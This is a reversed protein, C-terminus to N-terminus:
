GAASFLKRQLYELPTFIISWDMKKSSFISTWDAWFCPIYLYIRRRNIPQLPRANEKGHVADLLLDLQRGSVTRIKNQITWTVGESCPPTTLSGTYRYFSDDDRAFDNPDIMGPSTENINLEVMAKLYRTLQKLFPDKRGIRYLVSLVAINNTEENVHVAHRELEYRVGYVTHESPVHWHYQRLQYEMGNIEISGADGIWELAIDHGRNVLTTFSPQHQAYVQEWDPVIEVRVNTLDVPSQMKGKNCLTWNPNLYGWQSPGRGSSEDYNYETEASFRGLEQAQNIQAHLIVVLIVHGVIFISKM